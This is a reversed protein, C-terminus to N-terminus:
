TIGPAIRQPNEPFIEQTIGSPNKQPNQPFIKKIFGQNCEELLRQSIQKPNISIIGQPSDSSM